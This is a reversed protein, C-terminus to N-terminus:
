HEVSLEARGGLRRGGGGCCAALCAHGDEGGEGAADASRRAMHPCRTPDRTPATAPKTKMSTLAPAGGSGTPPPTRTTPTKANRATRQNETSRRLDPASLPVSPPPRIDLSPTRTYQNETSASTTQMGRPARTRVWTKWRGSSTTTQTTATTPACKRGNARM